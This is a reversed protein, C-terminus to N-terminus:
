DIAHCHGSVCSVFGITCMAAKGSEPAPPKPAPAPSPASCDDTRACRGGKCCSSACDSGLKCLAGVSAPVPRVSMAGRVGMGILACCISVLVCEAVIPRM